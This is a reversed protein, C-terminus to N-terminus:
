LPLNQTIMTLAKEYLEALALDMCETELDRLLRSRIMQEFLQNGDKFHQAAFANEALLGTKAKEFRAQYQETTLAARRTAGRGPAKAVTVPQALEQSARPARSLGDFDAIARSAYNLIAGFHAAPYNTKAAESRAFDVIHRAKDLGYQSILSVAQNMEKAQPEHASISHFTKHFHLVLQEANLRVEDKAQAYHNIVVAEPGPLAAHGEEAVTDRSGIKIFVVKYDHGDATDQITASKLVGHNLRVGQLEKLARQLKQKRNSKYRYSDGTLGLDAFLDKTCREYRTKGFMILDIHTYILQAIESNLNFFVEELLPKTYNAQLNTEIHRNFQFYGQQNTVHGHAKRTVIKLDDLMQFPIEEEYEHAVDDSRHFSKIWRLPITRLRRLSGTIADIVNTGWGKKRLLRSLVRDSFYVPRGLPKGSNEWQRILAYFMRQDETTLTGLDTFGIILKSSVRDGSPSTVQRELTRTALKTHGKAPQWIGPWKEINLEVRIKEPQKEAAGKVRKANTRSLSADQNQKGGFAAINTDM